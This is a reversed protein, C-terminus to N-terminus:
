GEKQTSKPLTALSTDGTHFFHRQQMGPFAAGDSSTLLQRRTACPPAHSATCSIAAATSQQWRREAAAAAASCFRVCEEAGSLCVSLRFQAM